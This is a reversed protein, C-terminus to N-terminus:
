QLGVQVRVLNWLVPAVEEKWGLHRCQEVNIFGILLRRIFSPHLCHYFLYESPPPNLPVQVFMRQSHNWRLPMLSAPPNLPEPLSPVMFMPSLNTEIFPALPPPNPLLYGVGRSVPSQLLLLLLQLLLLSPVLLNCSRSHM